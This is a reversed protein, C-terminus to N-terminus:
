KITIRQFDKDDFMGVTPMSQLLSFVEEVRSSNRTTRDLYLMLLRVIESQDESFCDYRRIDNEEGEINYTARIIRPNIKEYFNYGASRAAKCFSALGDLVDHSQIEIGYARYINRIRHDADELISQTAGALLFMVKIEDPISTAAIESQIAKRIKEKM